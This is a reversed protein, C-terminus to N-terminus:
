TGRPSPRPPARAAAPAGPSQPRWGRQGHEADLRVQVECRAFKRHAAALRRAGGTQNASRERQKRVAEHAKRLHRLHKRKVPVFSFPARGIM